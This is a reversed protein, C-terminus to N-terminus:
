NKGNSGEKNYENKEIDNILKQLEAKNATTSVQATAYDSSIENAWKPLVEKVRPRKVYHKDQKTRADLYADRTKLYDIAENATKIKAKTLQDALSWFYNRNVFSNESEIVIYHLIINILEKPLKSLADKLLRQESSTVETKKILKLFYMPWYYECAAILDQNASLQKTSSQSVKTNKKINAQSAQAFNCRQSVKAEFFEWDITNDDIKLSEELLQIIQQETIEYLNKIVNLQQLHQLVDEDLLFSDQLLIKLLQKDLVQPLQWEKHVQEKVKPAVVANNLQQPTFTFVDLLSCTIEKTNQLTEPRKLFKNVLRQYEYEGVFRLLLVRLLDEKFFAEPSLPKQVEYIFKQVEQECIFVRLLGLAELKRRAEYLDNLGCGLAVELESVLFFQKTEDQQWDALLMYLSFCSPTMLPQYLNLVITFDESSLTQVVRPEFTDKPSIKM